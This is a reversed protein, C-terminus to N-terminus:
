DGKPDDTPDNGSFVVPEVEGNAEKPANPVGKLPISEDDVPLLGLLSSLFSASLSFVPASAETTLVADVSSVLDDSEVIFDFGNAGNEVGDFGPLVTEVEDESSTM